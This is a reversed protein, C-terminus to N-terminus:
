PGRAVPEDDTRCRRKDAPREVDGAEGTADMEVIGVKGKPVQAALLCAVVAPRVGERQRL